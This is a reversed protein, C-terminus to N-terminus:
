QRRMWEGPPVTLSAEGGDPLTVFITLSGDDEIRGKEDAIRSPPRKDAAQRLALVVHRAIAFWARFVATTVVVDALDVIETNLRAGTPRRTM